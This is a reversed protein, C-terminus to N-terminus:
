VGPVDAMVKDWIRVCMRADGLATHREDDSPPEVGVARALADSNWPPTVIAATQEDPRGALVTAQVHGALYGVLMNEVDMLHYHANWLLGHRRLMDKGGTTDFDPVMGVITAGRVEYELALAAREETMVMANKDIPAVSGRNYFPHREYFHGIRLGMPDADSLDVPSIFISLERDPQGSERIVLGLDWIRRGPHLGTTETDFFVIKNAM